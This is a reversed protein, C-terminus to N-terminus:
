WVCRWVESVFICYAINIKTCIFSILKEFKYHTPFLDASVATIISGCNGCTMMLIALITNFYFEDGWIICLTATASVFLWTALFTFHFSIFGIGKPSMKLCQFMRFLVRKGLRNINLAVFGYICCFTTGMVLIIQYTM